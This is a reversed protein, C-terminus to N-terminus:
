LGVLDISYDPTSGPYMALCILEFFGLGVFNGGRWLSVPYTRGGLELWVKTGSVDPRRAGALGKNGVM